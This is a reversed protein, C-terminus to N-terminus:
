DRKEEEHSKRKMEYMHKDAEEMLKRLSNEDSRDTFAYGVSVSIGERKLVSGFREIRTRVEDETCYWLIAAFEDGGTRYCGCSPSDGFCERICSATTRLLNDGESHGKTDNVKKLYDVDFQLVAMSGGESKELISQEMSYRNPMGTLTDTEAARHLIQDLRDRRKLLDNYSDALILMESNKGIRELKEGKTITKAYQGLPLVIWRYLLVFAAAMLVTILLLVCWLATRLADVKRGSIESIEDFDSQVTKHSNQISESVDYKLLAYDRGLIMGRALGIRAEDPMALEEETLSVRPISALRPDDPLPYVSDILSIAHLQMEVMRESAEAAARIYGRVEDSVDYSDFRGAVAAGSREDRVYEEAYTMLPSPNPSGDELTPRQAYSTATESLVSTHAQLNTADQQYQGTNRM